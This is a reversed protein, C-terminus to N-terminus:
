GQPTLAVARFSLTGDDDATVALEHDDRPVSEPLRDDALAELLAAAAHRLRAVAGHEELQAALTATELALVDDLYPVDPRAAALFEALAMAESSAFLRPPVRRWFQELLDRYADRGLSLAVLRSTLPLAAVAMGARAESVLARLIGLGPDALLERALPTDADCGTALAALADEWEGPSPGSDAPAGPTPARDAPPSGAGRRTGRTAWIENLRVLQDRIRELGMRGVQDPMLEFTIVKLRPLTPVLEVALEVLEEPLEGSHADLLYGDHEFGGAVHVEWIRDLPLQAVFERAPQRGNRENVYINHLDLLIGCGAQRAVEAVFAGDPMEDARPRLYNVGTEVFFPVPLRGAVARITAAAARAGAPTQRPPLLFGANFSGDPGHAENFGLHESAWPAGLAEITEVLPPLAREDPARSGGVPFGVGHVLKTQPLERLRALTGADARYPRDSRPLERWLTQPELELVPVVDPAAELLPELGPAYVIGVGEARADL